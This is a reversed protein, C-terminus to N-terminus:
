PTPYHACSAADKIHVHMARPTTSCLRSERLVLYSCPQRWRPSLHVTSSAYVVCHLHVDFLSSGAAAAVHVRTSADLMFAADTYLQEAYSIWM